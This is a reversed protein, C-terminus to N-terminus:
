KKVIGKFEEQNVMRHLNGIAAKVMAQDIDVGLVNEPQYFAGIQL